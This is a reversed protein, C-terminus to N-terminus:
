THEPPSLAGLRRLEPWILAVLLVVIVTGIGGGVVSLIPGFLQATLGSEFGGLENSAGVFIANVASIRGRMADPTHTLMLTARIVVSVNDLGGLLFLMLLSLWFTHSLGFIITAVGFGVVVFLLVRGAQKFPPRYALILAVIVAGLPPAARLWGLGTPGVQLIDKAFIPLLTTAGGLLVAFMDLTIAALLLPNQRLFGLGEQISRWGSREDTHVPRARGQEKGRILVVLLAFILEAATTCVYVPTASQFLAIMVGGLAPGIVSALQWSSSNWTAASEFASESVTQAMFASTAPNLFANAIGMVLLCAYILPIAGHAFSSITLALTAGAMVMQSILVLRKRNFRDVVSGAPLSLLIVPIILVLGVGGLVLASNTRDYLEWGLAVELMKQGTIAVFSGGLFLRFDRFRLAQYPDHDPADPLQPPSAPTMEGYSVPDSIPMGEDLSDV